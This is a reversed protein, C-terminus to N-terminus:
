DGIDVSIWFVICRECESNVGVHFFYSERVNSSMIMLNNLIIEM